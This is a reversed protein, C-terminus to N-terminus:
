KSKDKPIYIQKLLNQSFPLEEGKMAENLYLALRSALKRRVNTRHLKIEEINPRDDWDDFPCYNDIRITDWESPEFILDTVGDVSPAKKRGIRSM